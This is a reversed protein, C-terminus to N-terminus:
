RHCFTRYAFLAFLPVVAEIHLVLAPPLYLPLEGPCLAFRFRLGQEALRHLVVLRFFEHCLGLVGGHALQQIHPYLFFQLGSIEAVAGHHGVLPRDVTDFLVGDAVALQFADGRVV